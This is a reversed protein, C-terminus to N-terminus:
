SMLLNLWDDNIDAPISTDMLMDELLTNIEGSSMNGLSENATNLNDTVDLNVLMKTTASIVGAGSNMEVDNVTADSQLLKGGENQESGSKHQESLGVCTYDSLDLNKFTDTVTTDALSHGHEQIKRNNCHENTSPFIRLNININEINIIKPLTRVGANQENSVSIRCKEPSNVDRLEFAEFLPSKNSGASEKTSAIYEECVPSTGAKDEAPTNSLYEAMIETLEKSLDEGPTVPPTYLSLETLASVDEKVSSRSEEWTCSLANRSFFTLEEYGIPWSCDEAECSWVAEELNIQFAKIRRKIGDKACVPCFSEM